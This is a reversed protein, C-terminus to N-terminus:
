FSENALYPALKMQFGILFSTIEDPRMTACPLVFLIKGKASAGIISPNILPKYRRYKAADYVPFRIQYEEKLLEIRPAEAQPVVGTIRFHVPLNNLVGILERCSACSESSFFGYLYLVPEGAEAPAKGFRVFVNMQREKYLLSFLVLSSLVAPLAAAFFKKM